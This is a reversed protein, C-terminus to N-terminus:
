VQTVMLSFDAFAAEVRRFSTYKGVRRPQVFGAQTLVRLHASATARSIGLKEAIHLGYVGGCEDVPQGPGFHQLPHKLWQLIQLRNANSLAHAKTLMDHM